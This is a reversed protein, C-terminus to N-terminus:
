SHNEVGKQDKFMCNSTKPPANLYRLKYVDQLMLLLIFWM